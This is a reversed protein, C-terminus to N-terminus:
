LEQTVKINQEAILRKIIVIQGLHYHNHEILGALNRYYTGYKEHGFIQDLQDDPLQEILSSLKDADSFFKNLLKHWDNENEFHPADFSEVDSGQLKGGELVKIVVDAYYGMHYVLMGITNFSQFKTNAEQWTVNQLTDKLNSCTWNGGYFVDRLHKAIFTTIKM